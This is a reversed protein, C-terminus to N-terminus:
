AFARLLARRLLEFASRDVSLNQFKVLGINFATRFGGNAQKPWFRDFAGKNM